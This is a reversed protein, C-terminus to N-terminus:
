LELQGQKMSILGDCMNMTYPGLSEEKGGGVGKTDMKGCGFERWGHNNGRVIKKRSAAKRKQPVEKVPFTKKKQKKKKTKNV